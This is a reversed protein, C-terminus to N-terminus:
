KIFYGSVRWNGDKDLTPVVTEVANKKNEFKSDYRIVVYEGDPVGPLETKYDALQMQRSVLEGLPSRVNKLKQEWEPETVDAKFFSSAESWNKAYDGSDVLKLWSQATQEAAQKKDQNDQGFTSISLALPILLFCLFRNNKM